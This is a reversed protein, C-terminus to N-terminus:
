LGRADLAQRGCLEDVPRFPTSTATEAATTTLDHVVAGAFRAVVAERVRQEKTFVVLQWGARIQFDRLMELALREREVDFALFPEDLILVPAAGGLRECLALRAALALADRTGRSLDALARVTGLADVVGFGRASLDSLEVTDRGLVQCVIPRMVVLLDAMQGSDASALERFLGAAIGAGRKRRAGAALEERYRLVSADCAALEEGLAQTAGRV